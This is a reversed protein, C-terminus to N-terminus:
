KRQILSFLPNSFQVFKDMLGGDYEKQEGTYSHTIECTRQQSPDLHYPNASNLNYTLFAPSTGLGNVSPTHPNATFKSGNAGNMAHPYTGFYHDFSVNEQFIIVLHKSPTLTSHTTTVAAAYITASAFSSGLLILSIMVFTLLMPVLPRNQQRKNKKMSM